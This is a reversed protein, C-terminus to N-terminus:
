TEADKAPFLIRPVEQKAPDRNFILVDALTALVAALPVSLLVYVGGFLLGVASVTVLVIL